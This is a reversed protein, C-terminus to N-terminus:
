CCWISQGLLIYKYVCTHSRHTHSVTILFFPRSASRAHPCPPALTLSTNPPFSILITSMDATRFFLLMNFIFCIFILSYSYINKHVCVCVYVCTDSLCFFLGLVSFELSPPFFGRSIWLLLLLVFTYM